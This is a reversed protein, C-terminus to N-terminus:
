KQKRGALFELIEDETSTNEGAGHKSEKIYSYQKQLRACLKEFLKCGFCGDVSKVQFLYAFGTGTYAHANTGDNEQCTIEDGRQCLHDVAVKHL